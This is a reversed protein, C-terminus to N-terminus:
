PKPNSAILPKPYTLMAFSACSPRPPLGSLVQGGGVGDVGGVHFVM